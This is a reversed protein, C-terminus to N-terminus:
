EEIQKPTDESPNTNDLLITKESKLEQPIELNLKEEMEAIKKKQKEVLIEMQEEKWKKGMFSSFVLVRFVHILLFFTWILVGFVFWDYGLPKFNAGFDLLFNLVIMFICGVLYFMFHTYLGKKEKIRQQAQEFLAKQQPDIQIEKKKTRGFM